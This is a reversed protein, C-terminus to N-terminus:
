SASTIDTEPTALPVFDFSPNVAWALERFRCFGNALYAQKLTDCEPSFLAPAGVLIALCRARSTAVNMRNPSYLFDMGRPADAISSSTLSYIVVAAELGQFKDVTGVRAGRPLRRRLLAVQANYPAVVLVDALTLPMAQNAANRWSHTGDVLRTFLSAIAVVEEPSDNQNGEHIVPLFALGSEPLQSGGCLAQRELGERSILRGEYYQESTFRCISPPLRWTQPVFLGRDEALTDRGDLLHNLAAVEAGEPHSGRQPQELQQPDGLLIINKTARAAALAMALSMQGAEDIFLYDLEQELDENSWVWATGGVVRNQGLAAAVKDTGDLVEINLPFDDPPHLIRQALAVKEDSEAVASLLNTIVKNSVASVGVRYGKAALEAIMHSGLYTKGAGPPGQIALVSNDLDFALEVAAKLIDGDLPLQLSKLSPPQKSLLEYRAKHNPSDIDQVVSRAFDLLSEPLPKPRVRRFSFVETPHVEITAQTKKIDLIGADLDFAAVTGLMEGNVEILEDGPELRAEQPPFSYRHTPVRGGRERPTETVFQLGGVCAQESLVEDPELNRLRFYEWWVCKDERRFYDLLHALLWRASQDRNRNEEPIGSVLADFVQSVENGQQEVAASAEGNLLEPRPMENGADILEARLGELWDRLVLTSLCDDRNYDSVTKSDTDCIEGPLGLELAREVRHLGYRADELEAARQFDYFPELKKISYSEVSARLGQLVVAYLDIFRQGRLLRDVEEERTAHQMALRKMASPEYHAYHYVHMGPFREWRDMVFDIFEEFTKKEAASTLSWGGKYESVGGGDRVVYGLLYELGSNGVHPDGEIDFFIDGVDPEPLALLGRKEELDLLEYKLSGERRARYQIKAQLQLKVFTAESGKQPPEPLPKTSEAFKRLTRTGQRYLEAIQQKGIGAVLTLHDDQRRRKECVTRWNCIDCHSVPEPYTATVNSQVVTEELKERVMRYYAMFDDVRLREEEFPEGPKVVSMTTPLKGQLGRVLDSYLCLQLVAGVRTNLSLKTDAVEYSWDGFRSSGEVKVLLDPRGSWREEVLAGQVIVDVGDAMAKQTEEQAQQIDAEKALERVTKGQEKLHEIYRSEHALGREVLTELHLDKRVPKGIERKAAQLSLTTLHHCAVHNALDTAALMLKQGDFQM